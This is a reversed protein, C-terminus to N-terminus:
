GGGVALIGVSQNWGVLSEPYLKVNPISALESAYLWNLASMQGSKCFTIIDGDIDLAGQAEYAAIVTDIGDEIRFEGALAAMLPPAPFSRASPITSGIVQGLADVQAFVAHPRADFLVGPQKQLSVALVQGELARWDQAFTLDADYAPQRSPRPAIRQGSAAWAEFGGRLVAIDKAGMSKLVWYVYAGAGTSLPTDEAHVIVTPVDMRLGADGILEAYYASSRPSGPNEEPGRWADYPIALADPVTGDAVEQPTRIDIVQLEIRTQLHAVVDPTPMVSWDIEGLAGTKCPINLVDGIYILDPDKITEPNAEVIQPYGFVSGLQAGSIDWLTDGRVVDHQPTCAQAAATSLSLALFAAVTIKTHM